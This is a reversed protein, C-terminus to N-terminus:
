GVHVMIHMASTVKECLQKVEGETLPRCDYLKELWAELNNIDSSM